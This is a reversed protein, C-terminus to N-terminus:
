EHDSRVGSLERALGRALRVPARAPGAVSARVSRADQGRFLSAELRLVDGDVHSRVGLPMQCGGGLAGLLAREARAEVWARADRIGRLVRRTWGDDVRCELGIIGQGVAPLLVGGLGSLYLDVGGVRLTGATPCGLRALGAAALVMADGARGVALKELRTPVNGRVGVAVLDPRAERMMRERRESGTALVAGRPLGDLGGPWRSVLVDGPDARELVGGLMLGTPLGTPLDKLSHVAVDVRRGLLADELERTFLGKDLGGVGGVERLDRDLEADGRTRIVEVRVDLGVRWSGLRGAVLGAQARALESGRTGLVLVRSM